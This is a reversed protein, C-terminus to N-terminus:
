LTRYAKLFDTLRGECVSSRVVVMRSVNRTIVAEKFTTNKCRLIICEISTLMIKM